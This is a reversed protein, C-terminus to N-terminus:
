KDKNTNNKTNDFTPTIIVSQPTYKTSDMAISQVALATNKDLEKGTVYLNVKSKDPDIYAVCDKFNCKKIVKDELQKEKNMKDRTKKLTDIIEARENHELNVNNLMKTLDEHEKDYSTQRNLKALKIYDGSNESNNKNTSSVLQTQGYKQVDKNEKDKNEVIDQVTVSQDGAAYYFNLVAATSLTVLLAAIMIQRKGIILNLKKM